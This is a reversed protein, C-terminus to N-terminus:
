KGHGNIGVSPENSGSAARSAPQVEDGGASGAAARTASPLPTGRTMDREILAPKTRAAPRDLADRGLSFLEREEPPLGAVRRNAAACQEYKSRQRAVGYIYALFAGREPAALEEAPLQDLVALAEEAQNTQALALALGFGYDPNAPEATHLDRMTQKAATWALARQTLLALRAWAFLYRPRAPDDERLSDALVKLGAVDKRERLRAALVERAWFQDPSAQSILRLADEAEEAWGWLAALRYLAALDQPAAGAKAVAEAWTQRRLAASDRSAMFHAAFALRVTDRSLPGWAGAELAGSLRDWDGLVAWAQAKLATMQPDGPLTDLWASVRAAEGALLCWQVFVVVDEGRGAANPALATFLEAVPRGDANLEISALHLRDIFEAGPDALAARAHEKAPAYDKRAMAEALERRHRSIAEGPKRQERAKLQEQWSADAAVGTVPPLERALARALAWDGLRLASLALAERGAVAGPQLQVLRERLPLVEPSGAADLLEATLGIATRDDPTAALAVALAPRARTFDKRERAAVGAGKEVVQSKMGPWFRWVAIVVGVILLGTLWRRIIMRRTVVRRSLLLMFVTDADNRYVELNKDTQLHLRMAGAHGSLDM